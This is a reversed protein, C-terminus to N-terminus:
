GKAALTFAARVSGLESDRSEVRLDGLRLQSARLLLDGEYRPLM